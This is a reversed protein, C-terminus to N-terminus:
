IFGELWKEVYYLIGGSTQHFEELYREAELWNAPSQIYQGSRKQTKCLALYDKMKQILQLETIKETYLAAQYAALVDKKNGLPHLLWFEDFRIYQM